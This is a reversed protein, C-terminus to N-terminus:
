CLYKYLDNWREKNMVRMGAVDSFLSKGEGRREREAKDDKGGEMAEEVWNESSDVHFCMYNIVLVLVLLLCAM